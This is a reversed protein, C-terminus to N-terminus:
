RNEHEGQQQFEVVDSQVLPGPATKGKPAVEDVDELEEGRVPAKTGADGARVIHWAKLEPQHWYSEEHQREQDRPMDGLGIDASGYM